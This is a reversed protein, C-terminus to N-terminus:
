GNYRNMASDVGHALIEEAAGCAKEVAEGFAPMQEPPIKGLVWDKLDTDPRPKQGVGIKIRALEETGMLEIIDKMGNHGGHSGRRRVRLRGVPLSIDDFIVLIREPPIKYFHSLAAVAKGSLNMYTQPKALLVRRGAVTCMGWVADFRHKEFRCGFKAAIRDAAAFGANHRTGEYQLGPNGLGAILWECSSDGSKFIM